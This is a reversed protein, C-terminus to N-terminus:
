GMVFIINVLYGIAEKVDKEAYVPRNKMGDLKRLNNIVGPPVDRDRIINLFYGAQSEKGLLQSAVEMHGDRATLLALHLSGVWQGFQYFDDLKKESVFTEIAPILKEGPLSDDGSPLAVDAQKLGTMILASTKRAREEDRTNEAYQLEAALAGFRFASKDYPQATSFGRVGIVATVRYYSDNSRPKLKSLIEWIYSSIKKAPPGKGDAAASSTCPLMCFSLMVFLAVFRTGAKKM